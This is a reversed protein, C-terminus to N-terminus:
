CPLLQIPPNALSLSSVPCPCALSPSFSPALTRPPPEPFARTRSPACPRGNVRILAGTIEGTLTRLPPHKSPATTLDLTPSRSPVSLLPAAPSGADCARSSLGASRPHTHTPKERGHTYAERTRTHLRRPDTHTPKERGHPSMVRHRRVADHPPPRAKRCTRDSRLIMWARVLDSMGTELTKRRM